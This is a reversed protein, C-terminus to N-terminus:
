AGIKVPNGDHSIGLIMLEDNYIGSERNCTMPANVENSFLFVPSYLDCNEINFYSLTATYTRTVRVYEPFKVQAAIYGPESNDTITFSDPYVNIITSNEEIIVDYDGPTLGTIDMVSSLFNEDDRITRKAPIIMGGPSELSLSYDDGPFYGKISLTIEGTNAGSKPTFDNVYVADLYSLTITITTSELLTDLCMVTYYYTKM